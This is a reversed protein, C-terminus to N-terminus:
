LLYGGDSVLVSGTITAAAESLLFAIQGAIEKPKAFRGLPTGHEAIEAFAEDRGIEAARANFEDSEWMPTETGGPAIVNVRIRRAASEKAAVKALQIL